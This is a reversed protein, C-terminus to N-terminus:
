FVATKTCVIPMTYDMDFLDFVKCKPDILCEALERPTQAYALRHPTHLTSNLPILVIFRYQGRRVTAIMKRTMTKRNVADYVYLSTGVEETLEQILTDFRHFYKQDTM